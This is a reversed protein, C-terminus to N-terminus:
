VIEKIATFIRECNKKDYLPFFSEVRDRYFRNMSFDNQKITELECVVEKATKCVLGFGNERYDFYAKTYHSEFYKDEDFQFYISPKKMYAFDFFVSSFDTILVAASRLHMQISHGDNSNLFHVNNSCSNYACLFRNLKPHVYFYVDIHSSKILNLFANNNILGNWTKFYDTEVFDTLSDIKDLWRRWTPMIFIERSFTLDHLEDFRALGLYKAVGYEYGFEKCIFDYEPKAGCCILDLHANESFYNPHLNKFIGHKLAINKGTCHHKRLYKTICWSPSCGHVLTSIKASAAIFILMHKYSHPEVVSGISKILEFYPNKKSIIYVANIEPHENYLYKFFHYGNDRADFDVESVLWYRKKGYLIFALPFSLFFLLMTIVFVFGHYVKKIVKM